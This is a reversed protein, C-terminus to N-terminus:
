HPLLRQYHNPDYDFKVLGDRYDIHMTLQALTAAGIFGSVELGTNKSINSTDFSVVEKAPQKINAFYFNVNDATYVKQVKGSIGRVTYDNDSHLKTFERAAEPSITTSWAGTDLIFLKRNPNLNLSTPILLQHGVRYIRSYTKMEPAVYRDQPGKQAPPAPVSAKGGSNTATDGGSSAESADEDAGQDTQLTPTQPGSDSPRPPLPGLELKQMPYDLTV